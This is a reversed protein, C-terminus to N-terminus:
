GSSSGADKKARARKARPQGNLTNERRDEDTLLGRTKAFAEGIRTLEAKRAPSDARNAAITLTTKAADAMEILTAAEDNDTELATSPVSVAASMQLPAEVSVILLPAALAADGSSALTVNPNNGVELRENGREVSTSPVDPSVVIPTATMRNEAALRAKREKVAHRMSLVDRRLEAVALLAERRQRDWGFLGRAGRLVGYRRPKLRLHFAITAAPEDSQDRMAEEVVGQIRWPDEYALMANKSIRSRDAQLGDDPTKSKENVSAAMAKGHSIAGSGESLPGALPAAESWATEPDDPKPKPNFLPWERTLRVRPAILKAAFADGVAVQDRFRGDTYFNLKDLIVGYHGRVLLMAKKDDLRKSVDPPMLPVSEFRGSVSRGGIRSGNGSNWGSREVYHKGFDRSISDATVDDGVAIFLKVDMNGLLAERTTKGYREDIQSLNQAIIAIRFGFGAVLPARYIIEPLRKFQYFEDLMFLVKHPEDEGPENRLLVDHIQQILLRILPEAVSFDSVPAAIFISFPTRRLETIDFDSHSTTDAILRNNLGALATTIHSEFSGRQKLERAMHQRFADSIFSPLEPENQLVSKLVGFLAEGPQGIDAVSFMRLVSRLTRRGEMTKSETVYGVMGAFLSRATDIWYPDVGEPAPLLSAALAALDTARSPWPRIFDLPNWCHSEPSGPAILYLKQGMAARTPGTKRWNEQKVDLVIVSGRWELLNTMVFGRGKGSRTPGNVFFHSDGSYRVDRGAFTGLLISAGPQGDLLDAKKLDALTGMRAGDSPPRIVWPRTVLAYGAGALIAIELITGASAITVIKVVLPHGWNAIAQQAPLALDHRTVLATWVDWRKFLARFALAYNWSWLLWLGLLAAATAVLGGGGILLRRAGTNM